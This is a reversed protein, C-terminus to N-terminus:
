RAFMRKMRVESMTSMRSTRVAGLVDLCTCKWVSQPFFCRTSIRAKDCSIVSRMVCCKSRMERATSSSLYAPCGPFSDLRMRCNMVLVMRAHSFSLYM